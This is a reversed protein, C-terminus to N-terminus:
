LLGVLVLALWIFNWAILWGLRSMIKLRVEHNTMEKQGKM